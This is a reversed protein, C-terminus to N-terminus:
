DLSYVISQAIYINQRFNFYRSLHSSVKITENVDIDFQDKYKWGPTYLFHDKFDFCIQKAIAFTRKRALSGNGSFCFRRTNRQDRMVCVLQLYAFLGDNQTSSLLDSTLRILKLPPNTEKRAWVNSEINESASRKYFYNTRLQRSVLYHTIPCENNM